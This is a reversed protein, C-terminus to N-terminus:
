SECSVATSNICRSTEVVQNNKMLVELCSESATDDGEPRALRKGVGSGQPVMSVGEQPVTSICDLAVQDLDGPVRVDLVGCHAGKKM